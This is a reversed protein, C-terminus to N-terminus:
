VSAQAVPGVVRGAVPGAVQRSVVNRGVLSHNAFRDRTRRV